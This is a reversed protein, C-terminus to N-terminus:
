DFRKNWRCYNEKAELPAESTMTFDNIAVMVKYKKSDPLCIGYGVECIIEYEQMTVYKAAAQKMPADIPQVKMVPNQTDEAFYQVLVRGKWTSGHEPHNNMKDTNGGSCDLPAGYVNIWNFTPEKCACIDKISFKLSGVLEDVGAQEYDYIKFM